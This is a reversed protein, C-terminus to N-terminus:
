KFQLEILGFLPDVVGDGGVGVIRLWVDAQAGSPITVYASTVFGLADVLVEPGTGAGNELDNWAAQDTSYQGQLKAGAFGATTEVNVQLRVQTFQTLDYKRRRDNLGFLETSAAPMDTWILTALNFVLALPDRAHQHDSRAMQESTGVVGAIGLATPTATAQLIAAATPSLLLLAGGTPVTFLTGAGMRVQIVQNGTTQNRYVTAKTIAALQTVTAGGALAGGLTIMGYRSEDASLLNPGAVITKALHGSTKCVAEIGENATVEKQLGSTAINAKDVFSFSM